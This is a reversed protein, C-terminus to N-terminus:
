SKSLLFQGTRTLELTARGSAVFDDVARTVGNQWWGQAGYDDGALIGGDRVKAHYLALDRSVYEYTHNGDIYVWDFYRDPFAAIAEESGCRHIEVVGDEIAQAFRKRVRGHIEDLRQQDSRRSGYRADRYEESERLAWPDILHLKSPTTIELIQQSFDGKWVGIEACIARRPLLERLFLRRASSAV